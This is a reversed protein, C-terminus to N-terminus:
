IVWVQKNHLMEFEEEQENTYYDSRGHEHYMTDIM